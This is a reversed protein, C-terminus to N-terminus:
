LGTSKPSAPIWPAQTLNPPPPLIRPVKSPGRLRELNKATSARKAALKKATKRAAKKAKIKKFHMEKARTNYKHLTDEESVESMISPSKSAVETKITAVSEPSPSDEGTFTRLARIQKELERMATLKRTKEAPDTTQKLEYEYDSRKADLYERKKRQIYNVVNTLKDLTSNLTNEVVGMIVDFYEQDTPNRGAQNAEFELWDIKDELDKNILPKIHKPVNQPDTLSLSSKYASLIRVQYMFRYLNNYELAFRSQQMDTDFLGRNCLPHTYLMDFITTEKAAPDFQSVKATGSVVAVIQEVTLRGVDVSMPLNGYDKFCQLGLYMLDPKYGFKSYACLGTTNTYGGALELLGLQPLSPTQKICYLYAGMLIAGGGAVNSCILNVTHVEPQSKCEGLETVLFGHIKDFRQDMLSKKPQLRITEYDADILVLIDFKAPQTTDGITKITRKVADKGYQKGISTCMKASLNRVVTAINQERERTKTKEREATKRLPYEILDARTKNLYALLDELNLVTFGTKGLTPKIRNKYEAIHSAKFFHSKLTAM